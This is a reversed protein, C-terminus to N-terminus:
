GVEDAADHFVERAGNALFHDLVGYDVFGAQVAEAGVAYFGVVALALFLARQTSYSNPIPPLQSRILIYRRQHRIQRLLKLLNSPQLLQLIYLNLPLNNLLLPLQLLLLILLLLYNIILHPPLIRLRLLLLLLPQRLLPLPPPFPTPPTLIRRRKPTLSSPKIRTMHNLKNLLLLLAQGVHEEGNVDGEDDLQVVFLSDLAGEHDVFDAEHRVAM